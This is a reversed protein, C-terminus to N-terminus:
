QTSLEQIIKEARKQYEKGDHLMIQANVTDYRDCFAISYDYCRDALIMYEKALQINEDRIRQQRKNLFWQLLNMSNGKCLKTSM